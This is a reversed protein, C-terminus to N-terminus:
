RIRQLKSHAYLAFGLGNRQPLLHEACFSARWAADIVCPSALRIPFGNFYLPILHAAHHQM